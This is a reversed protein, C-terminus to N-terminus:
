QFSEYLHNQHQVWSAVRLRASDISSPSVSSSLDMRELPDNALNYVEVTSTSENFIYKMDGKRYGFYLQTWPAFYFGEESPSSLLNRGQWDAPPAIGILSLATAPIDKSGGLGSNRQGNFLVPNILYLPVRLDEEYLTNGHGSHGHQQFAEGHDGTVVVLTTSDLGRRQLDDLVRIVMEMDHRAANLYRNYSFDGVGYDYEEGAYYYPYHAQVTWLMSFFPEHPSEDLWRGLEGVLCEDDVGAGARYSHVDLRFQEECEIDRYDKVVDFERHQLYDLASQWSQDASSFFSTRYGEQELVSPLSPFDVTTLERTVSEYSLKPYIGTLLSVMSCNTSPAHAYINPFSMARDLYPALPAALGQPGHYTDLYVGGVSELVIFLLNKVRDDGVPTTVPAKSPVEAFPLSGPPLSQQSFASPTDSAFASRVFTAVANDLQGAPAPPPRRYSLLLSLSIVGFLAAGLLYTGARRPGWLTALEAIRSLLLVSACFFLLEEARGGSAQEGIAGWSDKTTMFDSYYLWQYTFPNGLYAVTDVNVLSSLALLLTIVTFGATIWGEPIRNRAAALAGWGLSVVGGVLLLDQAAGSLVYVLSWRPSQWIIRPTLEMIDARAILHVAALGLGLAFIRDLAPIQREKLRHRSLWRLLAYTVLLVVLLILGLDGITVGGEAEGEVTGVRRIPRDPDVTVTAGARTDWYDRFDGAENETIWFCYYFESDPPLKLEAEFGERGPTMPTYLLSDVVRVGDNWRQGELVSFNIPKWVLFVAGGDEPAYVFQQRLTDTAGSLSTCCLILFLLTLTVVKM